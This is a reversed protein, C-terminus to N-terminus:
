RGGPALHKSTIYTLSECYVLPFYTLQYYRYSVPTTPPHTRHFNFPSSWDGEKWTHRHHSGLHHVRWFVFPIGSLLAIIHEAVTNMWRARFMPVHAQNHAIAVVHMGLFIALPTWWLSRRLALGYSAATLLLHLISQLDRLYRLRM